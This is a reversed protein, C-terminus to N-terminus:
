ESQTHASMPVWCVICIGWKTMQPRRPELNNSLIEYFVRNKYCFNNLMLYTNQNERSNNEPFKKMRLLISRYTILFTDTDDYLTDTKRTLNLSLQFKEVTM